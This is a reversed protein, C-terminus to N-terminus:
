NKVVDPAQFQTFGANKSAAYQDAATNLHQSPPNVGNIVALIEQLLPTLMPFKAELFPLGFKQVIYVGTQILIAILWQPM